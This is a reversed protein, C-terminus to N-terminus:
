RSEVKYSMWGPMEWSTSLMNILYVHHCCVARDYEKRLRWGILQEMYRELQQKKVQMCTKYSVPLTTQYEWRKLLKAYSTIIWVTLPKLTTSSVSTIKKKQFERSKETVWCIPSNSRQNEAMELDLKPTVLERGSKGLPMNSVESRPSKDKPTMDKTRKYLEHPEWPLYVKTTQWESRWHIVNQWFEGSHGM